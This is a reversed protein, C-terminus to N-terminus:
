IKFLCICIYLGGGGLFCLCVGVSACVRVDFARISEFYVYIGNYLCVKGALYAM